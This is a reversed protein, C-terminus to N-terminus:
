VRKFVNEKYENDVLGAPYYNVVLYSTGLLGISYGIGISHSNKWVLQAFHSSDFNFENANFNHKRNELYWLDIPFPGSLDDNFGNWMAINEGLFEGNVNNRSHEFKNNHAL